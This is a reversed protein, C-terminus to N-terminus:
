IVMRWTIFGSSHLPGLGTIYSFKGDSTVMKWYNAMKRYILIKAFSLELDSQPEFGRGVAVCIVPRTASNSWIGQGASHAWTFFATVMKGYNAMYSFAGVYGYEWLAMYSFAGMYGYEWLAMYSFAGMCGYEWLAMYSFAGMYGYEWLAMYSFAGMYGYEWLAM